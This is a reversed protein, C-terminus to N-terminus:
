RECMVRRLSVLSVWLWNEVRVILEVVELQLPTSLLLLPDRALGAVRICDIPNLVRSVDNLCCYAFSGKLTTGM